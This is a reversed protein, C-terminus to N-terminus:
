DKSLDFVKNVEKCLRSLLDLEIDEDIQENFLDKQLWHNKYLFTLNDKNLKIGYISVIYNCDWNRKDWEVPSEFLYEDNKQTCLFNKIEAIAQKIIPIMREKPDTIKAM